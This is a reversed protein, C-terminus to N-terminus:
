VSQTRLINEPSLAYPSAPLGQLQFSTDEDHMDYSVSSRTSMSKDHKIWRGQDIRNRIGVITSIVHGLGWLM